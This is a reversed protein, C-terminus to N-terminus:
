RRVEACRGCRGRVERVSGCTFADRAIESKTTSFPIAPKESPCRSFSLSPIRADGVASSTNSSTRTGASFRTPPSPSAVTHMIRFRSISRTTRAAIPARATVEEVKVEGVVM